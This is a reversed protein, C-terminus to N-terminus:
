NDTKFVTVEGMMVQNKFGVGAENEVLVTEGHNVISVAYINEDKLFGEPATEERVFYSGYGAAELEQLASTIGSRGEKSIAALGKVNYQWDDPLSLILSLLGKAKLSLAKDRLHVNSMVTYNKNKEVRIVAM